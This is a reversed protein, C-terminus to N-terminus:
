IKSTVRNSGAWRPKYNCASRNKQVTRTFSVMWKGCYLTDSGESYCKWWTSSSRIPLFWLSNPGSPQDRRCVTGILPLFHSYPFPAFSFCWTSFLPWSDSYAGEMVLDVYDWMILIFCGDSNLYFILLYKRRKPEISLPSISIDYNDPLNTREIGAFQVM